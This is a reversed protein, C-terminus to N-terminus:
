AACVTVSEDSTADMVIGDKASRSAPVAVAGEARLRKVVATGVLGYGGVVLVVREKLQLDM